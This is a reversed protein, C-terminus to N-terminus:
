RWKTALVLGGVLFAFGVVLNWAGIAAVPWSQSSVYFVIIWVLGVLFAGVMAPALWRPSVAAKAARPPPTYVTKSRTRSKPVTMERIPM